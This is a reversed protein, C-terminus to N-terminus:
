YEKEFIYESLRLWVAGSSDMGDSMVDRPQDSMIMNRTEHM